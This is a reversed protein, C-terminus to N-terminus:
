QVSIGLMIGPIFNFKNQKGSFEFRQIFRFNEPDSFGFLGAITRDYNSGSSLSRCASNIKLTSVSKSM